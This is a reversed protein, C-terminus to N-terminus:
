AVLVIKGFVDRSTMKEHAARAQDLPFTSDIVPRLCGSGILKLVQLLEGRGGMYSGLISVQKLYAPRLDFSAMAGTTAGCFVLRGEKKLSALSEAFTAPGIHEFVVDTGRGNTMELVTKAFQPNEAYNVGLDAGLSKAKSLKADSSATTIVTAGLWKAIQIAASGIGSGASHILVTEGAQLRARTVLMHWATLFVLPVAAWEVPSLGKAVPIVDRADATMKEAYGGKRRFGVIDFRDCQSEKGSLCHECERCGVGPALVVLEGKRRDSVASGVDVIEGCVDSGLIHPLDIAVGPIGQRIWIDLHNLACAKVSVLVENSKPRPEAVDSVTLVEPGGYRELIVAKM